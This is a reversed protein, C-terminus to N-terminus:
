REGMMARKRSALVANEREWAAQAAILGKKGHLSAVISACVDCRLKRKYTQCLKTQAPRLPIGCEECNATQQLPEPQAEKVETFKAIAPAPCSCAIAKAREIRRAPMAVGDDYARVAADLNDLTCEGGCMEALYAHIYLAVGMEVVLKGDVNLVYQAPCRELLWQHMLNPQIM